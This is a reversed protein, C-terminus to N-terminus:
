HHFFSLNRVYRDLREKFLESEIPEELNVLPNKAVHEVYIQSYIERLESSIDGVNLDTTLVFKLGTLTEFFNLKYSSTKYYQFGFKPPTPSIRTVFGKLSYLMGYMLKIDAERAAASPPKAGPKARWECFYLCTGKRDFLYFNFIMSRQGAPAEHRRNTVRM